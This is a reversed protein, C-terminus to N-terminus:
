TVLFEGTALRKVFDTDGELFDYEPLREPAEWVIQEFAFSRPQGTFVTVRHFMLLIMARKPYRHEYRTIEPGIIAEIGLEERLERALGMVASEGHEVKGGPFEWKLGHRDTRKRQGILIKGEKEIVAAAVKIVIRSM